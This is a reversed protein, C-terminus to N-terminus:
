KLIIFKAEKELLKERPREKEQLDKIKTM